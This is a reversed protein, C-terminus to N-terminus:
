LDLSMKGYFNQFIEFNVAFLVCENISSLETAGDYTYISSTIPNKVSKNVNSKQEKDILCVNDSTSPASSMRLYANLETVTKKQKIKRKFTKCNM